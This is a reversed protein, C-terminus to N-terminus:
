FDGGFEPDIYHSDDSIVGVTSADLRSDIGQDIAGEPVVAGSTSRVPTWPGVNGAVGGNGARQLKAPPAGDLRQMIQALEQPSVIGQYGGDSTILGGRRATCVASVCMREGMLFIASTRKGDVSILVSSGRIGVTATPTVILGDQRQTTQGGIMRLAGRTLTIALKGDGGNPAYVFEDLVIRSNPAVTLTTEDRFLLQGRGSSSAEIVENQHVPAGLPLVRASGGPPTGTLNPQMSAVKGIDQAIAPAALVLSLILATCLSRM